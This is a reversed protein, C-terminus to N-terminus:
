FLSKTVVTSLVHLISLMGMSLVSLLYGKNRSFGYLVSLGIGIVIIEWVIFVDIKSLAVYQISDLPADPVLAALSLSVRLSDKALVMPLAVLASLSFIIEGYLMTSLLQKFSAKGAMVFNGWFVGLAAALLPGLM